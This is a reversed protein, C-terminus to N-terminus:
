NAKFEYDRSITFNLNDKFLPSGELGHVAGYEVLVAETFARMDALGIKDKRCLFRIFKHLEETFRIRQLKPTFYIKSRFTGVLGRPLALPHM